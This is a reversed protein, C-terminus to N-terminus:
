TIKEMMLGHLLHLSMQLLNRFNLSDKVKFPFVLAGLFILLVVIYKIINKNTKSKDLIEASM